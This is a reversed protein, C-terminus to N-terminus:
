KQKRSLEIWNLIQELTFQLSNGWHFVERLLSPHLLIKEGRLSARFARSRINFSEVFEDAQEISGCILIAKERRAADILFADPTSDKTDNYLSELYKIPSSSLEKRARQMYHEIPTM